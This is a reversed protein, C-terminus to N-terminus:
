NIIQRAHAICTTESEMLKLACVTFHINKLDAPSYFFEVYFLIKPLSSFSFFISLRNRPGEGFFPSIYLLWFRGKINRRKQPFPLVDIKQGPVQEPGWLFHNKM